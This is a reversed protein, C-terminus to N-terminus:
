VLKVYTIKLEVGIMIIFMILLAIVNMNTATVNCKWLNGRNFIVKKMALFAFGIHNEAHTTKSQMKMKM